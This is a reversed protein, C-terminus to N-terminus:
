EDGKRINKDKKRYLFGLIAGIIVYSGLSPIVINIIEMSKANPVKMECTLGKIKHNLEDYCEVEKTETKLSTIILTSALLLVLGIILISFGLKEAM